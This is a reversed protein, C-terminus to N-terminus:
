ARTVGPMENWERGDLLRGAQKKGLKVTPDSGGSYESLDATTGEPAQSFPVYEGWQKFFFPVGAAVCQDRLSRAWDPHMHRAGPGSEGGVIVWHLASATYKDGHQGHVERREIERAGVGFASSDGLDSSVVADALGGDPADQLLSSHLRPTSAAGTQGHGDIEGGIGSDQGINSSQEVALPIKVPPVTCGYGGAASQTDVAGRSFQDGPQLSEPTDNAPISLARLPVAPLRNAGPSHVSPIINNSDKLGYAGIEDDLAGSSIGKKRCHGIWKSLDVAGLLPEASLFRVAAPTALLDPIRQDATAQNEVSVGMHLNPLPWIKGDLVRRLHASGTGARTYLAVVPPVFFANAAIGISDARSWIDRGTTMYERMRASRKTLVQYTIHPTLAIVALVRDIWADPVWEGFLDTMSCVFVRCPKKWRLPALLEKEDLYVEILGQDLYSQRYSDKAGHGFYPQRKEAYCNRCGESVHVCFHGVKPAKTVGFRARGKETLRARIATWSNDTWEIPTPGSM